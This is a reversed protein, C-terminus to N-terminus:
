NDDTTLLTTGVSFVHGQQGSNLGIYATQLILPFIVLITGHQTTYIMVASLLM